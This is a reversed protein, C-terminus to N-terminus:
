ETFSPVSAAAPANRNLVRSYVHATQGAFDAWSTARMAPRSDDSGDNAKRIAQRLAQALSDVDRSQFLECEDSAVEERVFPVDPVILRVGYSLALTLSGSTMIKRFPLVMCDASCVYDRVTSDAVFEFILQVGGLGNALQKIRHGYEGSEPRGVILLRVHAPPSVRRWAELLDEVGKYPWIVGFFLFEFGQEPLGLRRRAESKPIADGYVDRYHPHPIIDASNRTRLHKAIEEWASRNHVIISDALWSLARQLRRFFNPRPADHPVENHLTWVIRTGSAKVLLLDIMLKIGYMWQGAWSNSRIYAEHWHLHVVDIKSGANRLSRWVPLGRRYGNPFVVDVGKPKLSDAMLQQYPNGARWDPIMFVRM